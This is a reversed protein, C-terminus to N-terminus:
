THGAAVCKRSGSPSSRLKAPALEFWATTRTRTCPPSNPSRVSAGPVAVTVKVAVSEPPSLARMTKVTLTSSVECGRTVTVPTVGRTSRSPAGAVMVPEPKEALGRSFWTSTSPSGALTVAAVGMLRVM